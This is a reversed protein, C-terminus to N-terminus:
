QIRPASENLWMSRLIAIQGTHYHCHEIIGHLCRYCSGNKKDGFDRLLQSEPISEILKALTEADAWTKDLRTEWEQQSSISSCTFSVEDNSKLEGGRLFKITADIYYNMHFVLTGISHFSGFQKAAIQWTVGELKEKLCAGTWNNGFHIERLHKAIQDPYSM